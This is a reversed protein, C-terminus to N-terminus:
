VCALHQMSQNEIKYVKDVINSLNDFHSILITIRDNANKDLIKIVEKELDKDMASTFEDLLLIQPNKFLARILAVLQKQGGSLNLGNEGVITMYNQPLHMILSHFGSEHCFQVAKEFDKPDHSLTINELVSGSFLQIDQDVTSLFSRWNDTTIDNLSYGNVQIQGSTPAYFKQLLHLLTTKGSGSNGIIGITEGKKIEINIEQLLEKRGPYRYGLQHFQIKEIETLNKSGKSKEKDVQIFEYMRDFAVKAENWDINSLSIRIVSPTINMAITLIAMLEGTTLKEKFVIFAGISILTISFITNWSEMWGSVRLQLKSFDFIKNQFQHYVQRTNNTFFTEKQNIKITKIGQVTSIYQSETHAYLEMVEKQQQIIKANYKFAILIYIPIFFLVLSGIWVNFFCLYILSISVLLVDISINTMFHTVVKQLRQTDNLRAIMEGTKRQQFFSYPLYMLKSFFSHVINANFKKSHKSLLIGRVYTFLVRLSLLIFLLSISLILKQQNNSPLIFDILRQSFISMSLGLVAVIVGLFGGSILYNKDKQLVELFWHARQQKVEKDTNFQKTVELTLLTKSSWINELDVVNMEFVGKAPDGVIFTENKQDYGYVIIYHQQNKILVHLICPQEHKKLHEISAKCGVAKFGIKSAGEYLGLLSTGSISTGSIARLEELPIPYGHYYRIISLLCAVGCDAEGQQETHIKKIFHISKKM